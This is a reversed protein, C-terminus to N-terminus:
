RSSQMLRSLSWLPRVTLDRPHVLLKQTLAFGRQGAQLVRQGLSRMRIDIGSTAPSAPTLTHSTRCAIRRPSRMARRIPRRCFTVGSDKLAQASPRGLVLRRTASFPRWSTPTSVPERGSTATSVSERWSPWWSTPPSAPEWRRPDGPTLSRHAGDDRRHEVGSNLQRRPDVPIHRRQRLADSRWAGAPGCGLIRSRTVM